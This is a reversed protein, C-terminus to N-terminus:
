REGGSLMSMQPFFITVLFFAVIGMLARVRGPLVESFAFAVAALVISGMLSLIQVKAPARGDSMATEVGQRAGRCGVGTFIM